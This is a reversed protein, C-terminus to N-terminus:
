QIFDRVTNFFYKITSSIYIRFSKTLLLIAFYFKHHFSIIFLTRATLKERRRFDRYSWEKKESWFGGGHVRYVAMSDDLYFIRGYKSLHLSLPFDGIPLKKFYSPPFLGEPKRFVISCTHIYNENILDITATTIAPVKTIYDEVLNSDLLLNVKHFCIIYDTNDALFDVQKQLKYPDTWYDDGECLAIYKGRARKVNDAFPKVGKQFQNEEYALLNIIEPYKAAYKKCTEATGDTSADDRLLIEFHFNTKQMLFSEIAQAIYDKHNYTQCCISVLPVM